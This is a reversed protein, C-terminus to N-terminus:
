CTRAAPKILASLGREGVRVMAGAAAPPSCMCFGSIVHRDDEREPGPQNTPVSPEIMVWQADSLWFVEVMAVEL